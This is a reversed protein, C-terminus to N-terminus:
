AGNGFKVTGVPVIGRMAARMAEDRPHVYRLYSNPWVSASASLLLPPDTASLNDAASILTVWLHFVICFLHQQCQIGYPM